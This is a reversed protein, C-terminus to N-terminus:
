PVDRIPVFLDDPNEKGLLMGPGPAIPEFGFRDPNADILGGRTGASGQKGLKNGAGGPLSYCQGPCWDVFVYRGLSGRLNNSSGYYGPFDGLPM